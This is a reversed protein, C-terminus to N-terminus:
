RKKYMMIEEWCRAQTKSGVELGLGALRDKIGWYGQFPSEPVLQIIVFTESEEKCLLLLDKPPYM